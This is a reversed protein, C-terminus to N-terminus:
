RGVSMLAKAITRTEKLNANSTPDLYETLVVLWTSLTHTLDHTTHHITRVTSQQYEGKELIQRVCEEDRSTGFENELMAKSAGDLVGQAGHRLVDNFDFDTLM